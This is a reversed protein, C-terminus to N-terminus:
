PDCLAERGGERIDGDFLYHINICITGGSKQSKRKKKKEGVKCKSCLLESLTVDLHDGGFENLM